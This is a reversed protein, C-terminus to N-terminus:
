NTRWLIHLRFPDTCNYVKIHATWSSIKNWCLRSQIWCSKRQTYVKLTLSYQM